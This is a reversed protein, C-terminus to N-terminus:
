YALRPLFGSKLETFVSPKYYPLFNKALADHYPNVRKSMSTTFNYEKTLKFYGRSTYQFCQDSHLLLEATAKEKRKAARITSLVPNINQETGTNYSLVTTM